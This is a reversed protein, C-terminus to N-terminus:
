VILILFDHSTTVSKERCITDKVWYSNTTLYNSKRVISLGGIRLRRERERERESERELERVRM